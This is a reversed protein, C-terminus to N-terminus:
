KSDKSEAQPYNVSCLRLKANSRRVVRCQTRGHSGNGCRSNGSGDFGCRIVAHCRSYGYVAALVNYQFARSPDKREFTAGSKERM